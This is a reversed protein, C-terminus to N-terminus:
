RIITSVIQVDPKVTSPKPLMDIIAETSKLGNGTVYCVIDADRDIKGSEVLKQLVAVSVGGAPETFIGETKSLKLIGNIIEQNTAQNLLVM